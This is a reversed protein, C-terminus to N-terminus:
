KQLLKTQTKNERKFTQKCEFPNQRTRAHFARDHTSKNAFTDFTTKTTIKTM